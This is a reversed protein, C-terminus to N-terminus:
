RVLFRTGWYPNKFVEVDDWWVEYYGSNVLSFQGGELCAGSQDTYDFAKFFGAWCQVRNHGEKTQTVRIAVPRMVPNVGLRAGPLGTRTQEGNHPSLNRSTIVEVVHLSVSRSLDLEGVSHLCARAEPGAAPSGM